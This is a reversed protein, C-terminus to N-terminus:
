VVLPRVPEGARVVVQEVRLADGRGARPALDDRDDPGSPPAVVADAAGQVLRVEVYPVVGGEPEQLDVDGRRGEVRVEDGDVPGERIRELDGAGRLGQVEREGRIRRPERQGGVLGPEHADAHVRGGAEGPRDAHAEGGRGP